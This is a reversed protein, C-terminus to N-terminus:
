INENNGEREKKVKVIRDQGKENKEVQGTRNM